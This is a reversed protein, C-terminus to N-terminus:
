ASFDRKFLLRPIQHQYKRWHFQLIEKETSVKKITQFYKKKNLYQEGNEKRYEYPKL